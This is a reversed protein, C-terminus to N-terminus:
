SEHVYISAILNTYRGHRRGGGSAHLAEPDVESNKWDFDPGHRQIM